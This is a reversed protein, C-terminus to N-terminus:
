SPRHVSTNVASARSQRARRYAPERLRVVSPYQDLGAVSHLVPDFSLDPDHSRRRALHLTGFAHWEGSPRAWSLEYTTADVSRAGLVVPGTASRYPLLTTMPRSCHSRSATLLFRSTRGWGTTAFLVDALGEAAHVRVALGHIDPLRDPLGIARSLRAEVEDEGPEELWAVGTGAESGHRHIHGAYMGGAPHLPKASTRLWALGHTATALAGGALDSSARVLSTSRTV